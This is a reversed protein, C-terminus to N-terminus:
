KDKLWVQFNFALEQMENIFRSSHYGDCIAHHAQISIPIFV